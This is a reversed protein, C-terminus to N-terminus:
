EGLAVFESVKYDLLEAIQTMKEVTTTKRGTALYSVYTQSVGMQAALDKAKMDREILAIKLSKALNM